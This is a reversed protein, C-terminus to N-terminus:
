ASIIERAEIGVLGGQLVRSLAERALWGDSIDELAEILAERRLTRPSLVIQVKPIRTARTKEDPAVLEEHLKEGPRLGTFVIDRGVKGPSGSLRLIRRALDVIKVPEGMDLMAIQGRMDPLLSAQLVLQVAEPITMFYRTIEPHTVTLPKGAELQRQFLPIVSGSSGLVNGFRVASYGTEPYEEQAEMVVLEALRKTAGMVNVPAVAKDSSILVFSGCGAQGAARAVIWTGLVNNRVAEGANTEMMPVHKYAAAHFVRHPRHEELLSEVHPAHTIDAVVPLFEQDPFREQLDRDLEVLPTEAQDLLVLREPQHLALQFSLESGISGAAGTVLVTKGRVARALEPLELEVPARGLLDEIRVPRLQYLHANGRLVEPIGPLLRFPLETTECREVIRSLEGPTASPVAIILEDAGAADAIPKLDAVSGMVEVGHILLGWKMPDDDVMGAPTYGVPFRTMEGVLMAAAEGAGVLLVRRDRDGNRYSIRRLQQFIVRYGLWMGGIGYTTLVWELAVISRPVRAPIGLGWTLVLFLVSGLTTAALLRVMDQTGVFRWRSTALKLARGLALRIALLLPLTSLFAGTYQAPWSLEFRLFFALAFAVTTVAGYLCFSVLRRHRDRLRFLIKLIRQVLRSELM